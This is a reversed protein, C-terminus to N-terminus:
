CGKKYISRIMILINGIGILFDVSSLIPKCDQSILNTVFMAEAFFPGIGVVFSTGAVQLNDTPRVLM